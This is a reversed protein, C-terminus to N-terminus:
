NLTRTPPVAKFRIGSKMLSRQDRDFTLEWEMPMYYDETETHLAKVADILPQLDAGSEVEKVRITETLQRIASLMVVQSKKNSEVMSKLEAVLEPLGEVKVEKPIITSEAGRQKAAAIQTPTLNAM